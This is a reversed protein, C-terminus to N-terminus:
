REPEAPQMCSLHALGYRVGRIPKDFEVVGMPEGPKKEGCGCGWALVTKGKLTIRHVEESSM